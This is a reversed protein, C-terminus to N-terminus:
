SVSFGNTEIAKAFLDEDLNLGFGPVNPVLVEGNEVKYASGDLGPTTVEDWEVFTFNDVAGALHGSIYNGVHRGYHHPATRVNWTDLKTGTAIWDALGYGFIDYQIVKVLEQEAWNLLLPAALGEGDAILVSLNQQEIWERLDEYLIPDEHFAEEVWFLNCDATEALVRKTINLNYGNNADILITCDPGVATRVAQIVAVDRRTGEELPMHRAGRGVKIKFSRHNHAYGYRAEDAILSAAEEHSSLHLDDIYLSTDYCPVRFPEGVTKEVSAAALQYVPQDAQQGALDWLAFEIAKAKENLQPLQGKELRLLNSMPQGVLAQADEKTTRCPGFGSSGDDATIRALPVQVTQGHIALRSNCGAERPRTGELNAWEISQIKTNNM